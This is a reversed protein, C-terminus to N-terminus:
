KAVSDYINGAQDFAMGGHPGAFALNANVAPGGDGLPGGVGAGAFLTINGSADVKQIQHNLSDAIYVNGSADVVVGVPTGINASTAPGGDGSAFGPSGTGAFTIIPQSWAQCAAISLSFWFVFKRRTKSRM